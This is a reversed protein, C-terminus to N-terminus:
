ADCDGRRRDEGYCDWVREFAAQTPATSHTPFGPSFPRENLDAGPGGCACLALLIALAAAARLPNM